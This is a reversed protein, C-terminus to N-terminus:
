VPWVMPPWLILVGGIRGAASAHYIVGKVIHGVELERLEEMPIVDDLLKDIELNEM